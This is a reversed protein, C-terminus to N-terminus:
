RKVFRLHRVRGAYVRFGDVKGAADRTFRVTNGDGEFGDTFAPVLPFRQAPRFRVVLSGKDESVTYTVNLEDNVYEGAFEALQAPGPAWPSEFHWVRAKAGRQWDSIRAPASAPWGAGGASAEFTLTRSADATSLVGEGTPTLAQGGSRLVKQEKDWTLLLLADTSRERYVGVARGLVDAPVEIAKVTSVPKLRDGLFVDAVQHAYGGPNTGTTNCLVAVSLREDPFRALFTQYGATSGGHSVERVGRYDQVFLGQAYEIAFGDNLRGRTQLQDALARGGVRPNDFNENWILLDGVTTLLGGNGIVHTFPM